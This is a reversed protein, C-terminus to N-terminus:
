ARSPRVAAGRSCWLWSRIWPVPAPSPVPLVWSPRSSRIPEPRPPASTCWALTCAARTDCPAACTRPFGRACARQARASPATAAQRSSSTSAGGSPTREVSPAREVSALESPPSVAGGADSSAAGQHPLAQASSTCPHQMEDSVHRARHVRHARRARSSLKHVAVSTTRRPTSGRHQRSSCQPGHSRPPSERMRHPQRAHQDIPRVSKKALM